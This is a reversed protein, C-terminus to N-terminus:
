GKKMKEALENARNPTQGAWKSELMEKSAKDYDGKMLAQLMKKFKSLGNLGLQYVMEILIEQRAESLRNFFIYKDQLAMRIKAVRNRLIWNAEEETIYTMGYGFTYPEANTLPDPYPKSRFGEHEKISDVLSM